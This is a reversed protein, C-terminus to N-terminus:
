QTYPENILFYFFYSGYLQFEDDSIFYFFPNCIAKM